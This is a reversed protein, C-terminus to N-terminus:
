ACRHKSARLGLVVCGCILAIPLIVINISSWGYSDLMFGALFSGIATTTFILADNLGQVKNRESQRHCDTVIASAAIFAFNWGLGLLILGIWFHGITVGSLNVIGCCILLALGLAVTFEKGFRAIVSGTFFSPGYMALVHFMIGNSSSASPLGCIAMALPASTMIMNMLAQAATGCLVAVIFRPARAIESLSRAPAEATKQVAADQFRGTFAMALLAMLGQALFTGMFLYPMTLDKTANVLQPGIVAAVVGGTLVWSIARPRFEPTATDAAAFRYSSIVAHYIGALLTASCFLWFSALYVAAAATLGAAAGSLNGAMFVARRGLQKMLINAPYTAIAAGLVFFSIPLTSWSPRPALAHGVLAGTAFVVTANAGAIGTAAALLLANRRALADGTLVGDAVSATM